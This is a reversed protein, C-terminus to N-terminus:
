ISYLLYFCSCEEICAYKVDKEASIRSGLGVVFVVQFRAADFPLGFTINDRVSSRLIWAQQPVYNTRGSVCFSAQTGDLAGVTGSCEFMEGLIAALLSSKGAAIPGCIAILSGVQANFSIDRLVVAMSQSTANDNRDTHIPRPQKSEPHSVPLFWSFYCSKMQLFLAVFRM